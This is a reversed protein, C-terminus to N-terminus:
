KNFYSEAYYGYMATHQALDGMVGSAQKMCYRSLSYAIIGTCHTVGEADTYVAAVYYTDDLAKAAIGAVQGWYSGDAQLDTAIVSSANDATFEEAAAYDASTWIYLNVDGNVEGSPAFYYNIAFAGEFSVSASKGSFGSNTSAFAGLKTSDPAVAGKFYSADYPVVLAQQEATLGANMLDDTRYGFYEQAAAGYNLLAVCLAKMTEDESNELRNMAYQKPSYQQLDSYIYTGDTLKAYACYYRDDGMEKAAIGDTTAIYSDTAESGTYVADAATIDATGPDAYFMLMGQEAVSTTDSITYYLNVLIKDEFSLTFGV